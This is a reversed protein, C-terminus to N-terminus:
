GAASILIQIAANDGDHLHGAMGLTSQAEQTQDKTMIERELNADKQLQEIFSHLLDAVSGEMTIATVAAAQKMETEYMGYSGAAQAGQPILSLLNVSRPIGQAIGEINAGSLMGSGMMLAIMQVIQQIVQFVELVVEDSVGMKKLMDTIMNTNGTAFLATWLGRSVALGRATQAAEKAVKAVTKGSLSAVTENAAKTAVGDIIEETSQVGRAALKAITAADEVATEIAETAARQMTAELAAKYTGKAMMTVLTAFPQKMFQAAAGEAAKQAAKTCVNELVNMASAQAAADGAKGAAGAAADAAQEIVSMSSEVTKEAVSTAAKEASFAIDMLAGGGMTLAMEAVAVITDAWIQANKGGIADALDGTVNLVGETQLAEFATVMGVLLATGIGPAMAMMISGMVVEAVVMVMKMIAANREQEERIKENSLTNDINITSAQVAGKSMDQNNKAKETAVDQKIVQFFTLLFMVLALVAGQKEKPTMKVDSLIKQVEKMIEKIVNMVQTFEPTAAAIEPGLDNLVATLGSMMATANAMIAKDEAKKEDADGGFFAAVEDWFDYSNYDENAANYAKQYSAILSSLSNSVTSLDGAEASEYTVAQAALQSLQSTTMQGAASSNLEAIYMDGQLKQKMADLLQNMATQVNAIDAQVNEAGSTIASDICDILANLSDCLSSFSPDLAQLKAGQAQLDAKAAAEDAKYQADIETGFMSEFPALDAIISQDYAIRATDTKMAQIYALAQQYQAEIAALAQQEPNVQTGM